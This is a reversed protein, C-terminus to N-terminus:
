RAVVNNIGSTLGEEIEKYVNQMPAINADRGYIYSQNDVLVKYGKNLKLARSKSPFILTSIDDHLAKIMDKKISGNTDFFREQVEDNDRFENGSHNNQLYFSYEYVDKHNQYSVIPEQLGKLGKQSWHKWGDKYVKRGFAFISDTTAGLHSHCGMCGITEEHTQPRLDGKKDEIFGQYIWGMNNNLGNQYSGRFLALQPTKIGNILSEKLESLATRQLQSYSQWKYKKAYRLEKLRKSMKIHEKTEDWDIYRVSHLFETGVPFLGLALNIKKEELLRKALGVYSLKNPESVVIQSASDLIGNQNLDVQLLVEDVEKSLNIDKQKIIAEVISLNLSYIDIDFKGDANKTFVEDLRIMVDDTSGNTAWFTGLFPIYRFARWGTYKNTPTKDFGDADFDFYCDPVYGSWDNPLNQALILSGNSEIYNSHRIYEWMEDDLISAVKSSRDEFLNKFPNKLMEIPFNYEKQLTSDNYYNPTKGKTHCAYCPNSLTQTNNDRTQTYCMSTIYIGRSNRIQTYSINNEKELNQIYRDTTNALNTPSNSNQSNCGLLLLTFLLYISKM